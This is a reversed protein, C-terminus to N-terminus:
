HHEPLLWSQNVQNVSEPERVNQGARGDCGRRSSGIGDGLDSRGDIEGGAPHNVAETACAHDRHFKLWFKSTATSSVVYVLPGRHAGMVSPGAARRARSPGSPDPVPRKALRVSGGATFLLTCFRGGRELLASRATFHCRLEREASPPDAPHFAVDPPKVVLAPRWLTRWSAELV